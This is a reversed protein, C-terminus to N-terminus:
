KSFIYHMDETALKDFIVMSDYYSISSVGAYKEILRTLEPTRDEFHEKYLVDLIRKTYSIFSKSNLYGANDFDRYYSTHTDECIYVGNTAIHPIIAELTTIQQQMTHGGDEIFLDIIPTTQLFSDWFATSSQDGIIVQINPNDFTLNACKPDIDIGIIKSGTHLVKSWMELSGGNQVGVEVLTIPQTFRQVYLEYVPLYRSWKHSKKDLNYFVEKIKM